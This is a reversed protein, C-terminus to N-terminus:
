SLNGRHDVGAGQRYPFLERVTEDRVPRQECVATSQTLGRVGHERAFLYAHVDPFGRDIRSDQLRQGIVYPHRQVRFQDFVDVANAVFHDGCRRM